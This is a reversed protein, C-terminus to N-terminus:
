PIRPPNERQCGRPAADHGAIPRLNLKGTISLCPSLLGTSVRAGTAPPTFFTRYVSCVACRMPSFFVALASRALFVQLAQPRPM